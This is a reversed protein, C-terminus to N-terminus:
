ILYRSHKKSIIEINIDNSTQTIKNQKTPKKKQKHLTSYKKFSSVNQAKVMSSSISILSLLENNFLLYIALIDNEFSNKM